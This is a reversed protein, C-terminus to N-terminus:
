KSLRVLILNHEESIIVDDPGASRIQSKVMESFELETGEARIGRLGVAGMGGTNERLSEYEDILDPDIEGALTERQASLNTRQEALQGQEKDVLETQSEIDTQLAGRQNELAQLKEESAELESMADLAADELEGQRVALQDLEKQINELEKPSGQSNDLRSRQTSARQQVQAVQAEANSLAKHQDNRQAKALAIERGLGELENQLESLKQAAPLVRLQHTVRALALDLEQLDLLKLQDQAPAKM